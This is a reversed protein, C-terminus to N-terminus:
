NFSVIKTYGSSSTIEFSISKSGLRCLDYIVGFTGQIEHFQEDLVEDNSDLIRVAIIDAGNSTINLAYSHEDTPLKTVSIFSTLKKFSYNIKKTQEGDKDVVIVTYMGEGLKSFNYPRVFSAVHNITETFVIKNDSNLISIKVTGVEADDKKYSINFTNADAPTVSLSSIPGALASVSLACSFILSSVISKM